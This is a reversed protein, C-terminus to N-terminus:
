KWLPVNVVFARSPDDFAGSWGYPDTRMGYMKITYHLHGDGTEGIKTKGAVVRTGVAVDRDSLHLYHSEYGNEHDVTITSGSSHTVSGDAAAYVATGNAAPYDYGTHGDYFLFKGEEQNDGETDYQGNLSFPTHDGENNDQAYGRLFQGVCSSGTASTQWESEGNSSHGVEGTYAVVWEDRCNYKSNSDVHDLVSSIPTDYPGDGEGKLLFELGEVFWMDDFHLTPTPDVDTYNGVAIVVEKVYADEADWVSLPIVVTYWENPDYQWGNVPPTVMYDTAPVFEGLYAYFPSYLNVYIRRTSADRIGKVRFVLAKKGSTCTPYQVRELNLTGWVQEYTVSLVFGDGGSTTGLLNASEIGTPWSSVQWGTSASGNYIPESGPARLQPNCGLAYASTTITYLLAITGMYGMFKTTM